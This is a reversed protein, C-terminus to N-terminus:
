QLFIFDQRFLHSECSLAGPQCAGSQAGTLSFGQTLGVFFVESNKFFESTKKLKM